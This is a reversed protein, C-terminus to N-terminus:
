PTFWIISRSFSYFLDHCSMLRQEDSQAQRYQGCNEYGGQREFQGEQQRGEGQQGDAQTGGQAPGATARMQRAPQGPEAPQPQQQQREVREDTGPDLQGDPGGDDISEHRDANQRQRAQQGLIGEPVPQFPQQKGDGSEHRQAQQHLIEKEALAGIAREQIGIDGGGHDVATQQRQEIAQERCAVAAPQAAQEPPQGEHQREAQEGGQRAAADAAEDDGEGGGHQHHQHAARAGHAQPQRADD